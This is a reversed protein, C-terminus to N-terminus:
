VSAKVWRFYTKTFCNCRRSDPGVIDLSQGWQEIVSGPVTPSHQRSQGPAQEHSAPAGGCPAAAERLRRQPSGGASTQSSSQTHQLTEVLPSENLGTNAQTRISSARQSDALPAGDQALRKSLLHHKRSAKSITSAGETQEPAQRGQKQPQASGPQMSQDLFKSIPLIAATGGTMDPSMHSMPLRGASQQRMLPGPPGAHPKETPLVPLPFSCTGDPHRRRGLAYYRPRSYPMGLQLPTVLFEQLLLTLHQSAKGVICSQQILCWVCLYGELHVTLSGDTAVRSILMLRLTMHHPQLSQSAGQRCTSISLLWPKECCRVCPLPRLAWWMRWWCTDQPTSCPYMSTLIYCM